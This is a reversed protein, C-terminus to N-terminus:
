LDCQCVMWDMFDYKPAQIGRAGLTDRLFKALALAKAARKPFVFCVTEVGFRESCMDLLDISLRPSQKQALLVDLSVVLLELWM